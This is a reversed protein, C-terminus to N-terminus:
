NGGGFVFLENTEFTWERNGAERAFEVDAHKVLWAKEASILTRGSNDKILLPVIGAGGPTAVDLNHLASLADNAQSSQLTTFTVRGSRNSSKSRVGEGDAGTLLKFSDENFVAKVFTNEALGTVMIPGAIMSVEDAAYTKLM